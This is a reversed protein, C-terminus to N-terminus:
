SFRVLAVAATATASADTITVHAALQNGRVRALMANGRATLRFTLYGLENAGIVEPGTSAIITRGTTITTRVACPTASFCDAPVGGVAGSSVFETAGLIPLAPPDSLSRRPGPGTTLFPILNLTTTATAGSADRATVQVPLRRHLAHALKAQGVSTLKFFLVRGGGAPIFEPGTTAIVAGGASIRTTAHCPGATFCGAPLGGVGGASVFASHGYLALHTLTPVVQSTGLVQGAAGLAQVAFYPFEGRVVITSQTGGGVSALAEPSSGGLARWAVVGSEGNWSAHLDIITGDGSTSVRLAPFAAVSPTVTAAGATAGDLYDGDINITAGGYTENHAGDYQHLRQHVAWDSSPVYPDSTTQAGNWDAIWIEDPETYGTGFRAALDEIGSGGSAYVGSKYGDAHLQTTWASLFALVGSTSTGGRSYAEMDFYIPNGSGIALAQAQAVADTAAASGEASAQGPNIAACGCSNTPAQLGVYTPILHWGAASEENVWGATLNPQSCGMNTGGIYIGAARYPSSGWASMQGVSPATCADFGRGTFVAGAGAAAASRARVAPPPKAVEAVSATALSRVGLARQVIGPATNWTATVIVGRAPVSLQAASGRPPLAGPSRVSPLAPGVRGGSGAARAALPEVLIAETRGVAHALCRQVASPRGLYVAHRNFRVCVSPDSALHYVPWSAPVVLRYRNYRVVKGSTGAWAAATGTWGWAIAILAPLGLSILRNGITPRPRIALEVPLSAGRRGHEAPRRGRALRGQRLDRAVGQV